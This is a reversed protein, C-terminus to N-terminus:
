FRGTKNNSDRRSPKDLKLKEFRDWNEDTPNDIFYQRAEELQARRAPEFFRSLLESFGRVVEEEPAERRVFGAHASVETSLVSRLIEQGGKQTLHNKLSDSDLEEVCAHLKLIEQRLNDLAPDNVNIMGIDEAFADLLEPHNVLAAVVAQELRRKLVQPGVRQMTLGPNGATRGGVMRSNLRDFENRFGGRFQAVARGPRKGRAEAMEKLKQRFFSQYQFKVKRDAISRVRDELRKELGAVREPTSIERGEVELAWILSALPRADNILANIAASGQASVLSDPDEGAPLTVFRLSKGPALLPLAREAARGAARAGAKDGDFCLIPEDALKWLQIIHSETLATGLPAVSEYIGVQSLAIVDMYGETVIVRGTEYSAKRAVDLGYLTRQKDFLPTDPSNLYKPAGDGIIRGGFAIPQGRGNCIPFIVRDRFFDYPNRRDNPLRMLGAELCVSETIEDTIMAHKLSNGAPAFGLRFRRIIQDTLGRRRLYDLGKRGANAWLTNEYFVCAKEVVDVLKTQREEREREQPNSVPVELGAELAAREVAEPFSLGEKEILFTFVDGHAGCGFCHYFNKDDSVTFSPTKENHFPCLGLYERGKRTLKVSRNVVDSLTLRARIEDLFSPPFAM